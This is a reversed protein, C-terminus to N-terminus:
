RLDKDMGMLGRSVKEKRSLPLKAGARRGEEREEATSDYTLKRKGRGYKTSDLKSLAKLESYDVNQKGKSKTSISSSPKKKFADKENRKVRKDRGRRKIEKVDNPDNKPRPRDPNHLQVRKGDVRSKYHEAAPTNSQPISDKRKRKRKASTSTSGEESLVSELLSQAAPKSNLENSSSGLDSSSTPAQNSM